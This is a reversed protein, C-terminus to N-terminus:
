KKNMNSVLWLEEEREEKWGNRLFFLAEQPSDVFGLGQNKYTSKMDQM